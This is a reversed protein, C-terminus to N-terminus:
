GEVPEDEDEGDDMEKESAVLWSEVAKMRAYVNGTGISKIGSTGSESDYTTAIVQITDVDGHEQFVAVFTKWAAIMPDSERSM